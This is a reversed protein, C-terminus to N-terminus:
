LCQEVVLLAVFVRYLLIYIILVSLLNPIQPLIELLDTDTDWGCIINQPFRLIHMLQNTCGKHSPLTGSSIGNTATLYLYLLIAIRLKYKGFMRATCLKSLIGCSTCPCKQYYTCIIHQDDM